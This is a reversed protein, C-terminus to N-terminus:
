GFVGIAGAILSWTTFTERTRDHKGAMALANAKGRRFARLAAAPNELRISPGCLTTQLWVANLLNQATALSCRSKTPTGRKLWLARDSILGSSAPQFEVHPFVHLEPLLLAM